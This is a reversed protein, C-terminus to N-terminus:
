AKRMACSVGGRWEDGTDLLVCSPDAPSAAGTPCSEPRDSRARPECVGRTVRRASISRRARGLWTHHPLHVYQGAPDSMGRFVVPAPRLPRAAGPGVDARQGPFREATNSLGPDFMNLVRWVTMESQPLTAPDPELTNLTHPIIHAADTQVGTCGRPLRQGSRASLHELNSRDVTRTVVCRNGDRALCLRRLTGLRGQDPGAESWSTPTIVTSVSPTCRGQAKLPAFFGGLLDAAFNALIRYVTDKQERSYYVWGRARLVIEHLSRDDDTEDHEPGDGGPPVSIPFLGNLIIRVFNVRGEDTPSYQLICRFLKHM